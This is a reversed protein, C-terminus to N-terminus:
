MVVNDAPLWFTGGFCDWISLFYGDEEIFTAKIIGQETKIYADEGDKPLEVKPDRWQTELLLHDNRPDNMRRLGKVSSSAYIIGTDYIELVWTRGTFRMIGGDITREILVESFDSVAEVEMIARCLEMANEDSVVEESLDYKKLYM